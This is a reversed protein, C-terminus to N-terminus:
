GGGGSGMMGDGEGSGIVGGERVVGKVGGGGERVVGKM